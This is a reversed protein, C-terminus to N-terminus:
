HEKVWPLPQPVRAIVQSLSVLVWLFGEWYKLLGQAMPHRVLIADLSTDTEDLLGKDIKDKDRRYDVVDNLAYVSTYGAFATIIGIVIVKVPPFAGLWLLACLAPIAMDLLGHPTRSLALFLRMRPFLNSIRLTRAANM